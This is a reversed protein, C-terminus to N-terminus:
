GGASEQALESKRREIEADSEDAGVTHDEIHKVVYGEFALNHKECFRAWLEVLKEDLELMVPATLLSNFNDVAGEWWEDHSQDIVRDIFDASDFPCAPIERVAQLQGSRFHSGDIEGYDEAYADVADQRNDYTEGITFDEELHRHAMWRGHDELSEVVTQGGGERRVCFQMIINAIGPIMEPKFPVDKEMVHALADAIDKEMKTTTM